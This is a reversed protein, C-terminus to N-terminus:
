ARDVTDAHGWVRRRVCAQCFAAGKPCQRGSPGACGPWLAEGVAERSMDHGRTVLLLKVLREASLRGWASPAVTRGDVAVSFGGLVQADVHAVAHVKSAGNPNERQTTGTGQFQDETAVHRGTM